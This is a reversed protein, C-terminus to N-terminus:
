KNASVSDAESKEQTEVIKSAVAKADPDIASLAVGGNMAVNRAKRIRDMEAKTKADVTNNLNVVASVVEKEMEEQDGVVETANKKAEPNIQGLKSVNGTM